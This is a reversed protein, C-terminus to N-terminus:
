PLTRAVRFGTLPYRSGANDRGRAGARVFNAPSSWSHGRIAHRDCAGTMWARGDGPAGVYDENWCDATWQWVNGLMDYLGFPNHLFSGVPSSWKGDWRGGCGDCNANGTGIADGWWRATSTGGRAAYEWEAESPLRYSTGRVKRNLWAVYGQADDWSVNVVPRDGRGWGSDAPRYGGCGGDAVCADWEAFTVPDRGLAFPRAIDVRHQPRERRAFEEALDFRLAEAASTGIVAGGAPVVVMEPLGPADRFVDGPLRSATAPAWARALIRAQDVREPPMRQALSDRGIAGNGEGRRDACDFWAYAQLDDQPVGLGNLSMLGLSYLARGEGQAAASRLWKLAEARDEPVGWGNLYLVGLGSQALAAGGEALPRLLRAATEFREDDIAKLGDELPGAAASGASLPLAVAVALLLRRIM